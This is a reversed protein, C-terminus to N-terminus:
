GPLTTIEPFFSELELRTCENYYVDGIPDSRKLCINDEITMPMTCTSKNGDSDYVDYYLIPPEYSISLGKLGRLLM